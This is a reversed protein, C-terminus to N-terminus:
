NAELRVLVGRHDSDGADVVEAATARWAASEILVHDIAAGALAPFRTPWTGVAGAGAQTAADRCGGLDQMARHDSTANFDGAVVLREASPGGDRPLARCVDLAAVVDDRWRQMRGVKPAIPHVAVITPAGSAPDRPDLRISALMTDPGASQRYDGLEEAVLVAIASHDLGTTADTYLRYDRGAAAMDQQVRQATGANTEPLVAVDVDRTAMLDALEEHTVAAGLTNYTLVTFAQPSGPGAGGPITAGADLGRSALVVGHAGAVLALCVGLVFTARGRSRRPEDGPWADRAARRARVRRVLAILLTLLALAAIGLFILPRMAIAQAVYSRMTIGEFRPDLLGLADPNVTAAAVAVVAVVILWRLFLVVRVRVHQWPPPKRRRAPRPSTRFAM